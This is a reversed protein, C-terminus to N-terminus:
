RFLTLSPLSHRSPQAPSPPPAAPTVRVCTREVSTTLRGTAGPLLAEQRRKPEDDFRIGADEITIRKGGLVLVVRGPRVTLDAAILQGSPIQQNYRSITVTENANLDNSVPCIIREKFVEGRYVELDIRTPSVPVFVLVWSPRTSLFLAVGFFLAAALIGTALLGRAESSM